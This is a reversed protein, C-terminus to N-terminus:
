AETSAADCMVRGGRAKSARAKAQLCPFPPFSPARSCKTQSRRASVGCSQRGRVFCASIVVTLPTRQVLLCTRFTEKAKTPSIAKIWIPLYCLDLVWAM